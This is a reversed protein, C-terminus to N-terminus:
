RKKHSPTLRKKVKEKLDMKQQQNLRESQAIKAVERDVIDPAVDVPKHSEERPRQKVKVAGESGWGREECIKQVDGRGSVWAEPDGPFRALSGIYKRGKVNMGRKEAEKRYFDGQEPRQQFQRGNEIGILFEVDTNSKPPKGNVVMQDFRCLSDYHLRAAQFSLFGDEFVAGNNYCIAWRRASTQCIM